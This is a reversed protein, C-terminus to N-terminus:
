QPMGRNKGRNGIWFGTGNGAIFILIGEVIRIAIEAHQHWIAFGCFILTGLLMVGIFCLTVIRMKLWYSAWIANNETNKEINLRAIEYQHQDQQQLLKVQDTQVIENEPM